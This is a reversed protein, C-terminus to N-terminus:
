SWREQQALQEAEADLHGPAEATLGVATLSARLAALVEARDSLM